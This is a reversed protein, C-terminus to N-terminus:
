ENAKDLFRRYLAEDHIEVIGNKQTLVRIAEGPTNTDWLTIEDFIRDDLIQPFIKSINKHTESVFSNPVMRGTKAARAENRRIAEATDVTVYNAKLTQGGLRMAAAKKKLKEISSDGTGDLFVNRKSEAARRMIEKSLYSSEEHAFAAANPDKVKTGLKYEPLFKKIEDSDVTVANKLSEVHGERTLVSKGSAPGGGTMLSVPKAVPKADKFFDSIIEEHLAEREPTFGDGVKFRDFTDRGVPNAAPFDKDISAQGARGEATALPGGARGRGEEVWDDFNKKEAPVLAEIARRQSPTPEEGRIIRGRANRLTNAKRSSAELAEAKANARSYVEAPSLRDAGPENLVRQIEGALVEQGAPNKLTDEIRAAAAREIDAAVDPKVFPKIAGPSLAKFAQRIGETEAAVFHGLEVKRKLDPITIPRNSQDVMDRTTVVGRDFLELRSPGLIKKRRAKPQRRLWADFDLKESVQGDMSARANVVAKDIVEPDIGKKAMRARVRKEFEGDTLGGTNMGEGTSIPRPTPKTPIPVPADPREGPKPKRPIPAPVPSLDPDGEPPKVRRRPDEPTPTPEAPPTPKTPVNDGPEAPKAGTTNGNLEEWSRTVSTQTCRCRFHSVSGPWSQSHGIPDGISGDANLEWQLGDLARCTPCTRDDLTALWQIGKVVDANQSFTAIRAENSVTQISTRTLIEANRKSVASAGDKFNAGETGVIRKAIDDMGEGLAYGLTLQRSVKTKFDNRQGDWWQSIKASGGSGFIVARNALKRLQNETLVPNFVDAGVAKHIAAVTSEHSIKALNGLTERNAQKILSYSDNIADEVARRVEGIRKQKRISPKEKALVRVIDAELDELVKLVGRVESAELRALDIANVNAFGTFRTADNAM